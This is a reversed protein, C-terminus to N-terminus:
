PYLFVRIRITARAIDSKSPNIEWAVPRDKRNSTVGLIEGTNLCELDSYKNGNVFCIAIGGEASEVVRSPPFQIRRLQELTAAAWCYALPGPAPIDSRRITSGAAITKLKDFHQTFQADLGGAMEYKGTASDSMEVVASYPPPFPQKDSHLKPIDPIRRYLLTTAEMM